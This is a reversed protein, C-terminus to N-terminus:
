QRSNDDADMEQETRDYGFLRKGQQQMRIMASKFSKKAHLRERFIDQLANISNILTKNDPDNRLVINMDNIQKKRHIIEGELEEIKLRAVRIFFDIVSDPTNAMDLTISTRVNDM